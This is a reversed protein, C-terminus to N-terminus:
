RRVAHQRGDDQRRRQAGGAGRARGREVAFTVGNLIRAHGYLAHVDHFALLSMVGGDRSLGRRRDSQGQNRRLHRRQAAASICCASATASRSVRGAHRARGSLVTVNWRNALDRLIRPSRSAIGGDDPRRGARRASLVSPRGVLALALDLRRQDGYSIDRPRCTPSDSLILEDMVEAIDADAVAWSAVRLQQEVTLDPFINTRQFSRAMGRKRRQQPTLGSVDEGNLLLAAAATRPAARCRRRDADIQRRREPRDPRPDRRAAGRHRRRRARRLRRVAADARHRRARVRTM